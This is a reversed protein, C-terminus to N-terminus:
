LFQETALPAQSGPVGLSLQAHVRLALGGGEQQTSSLLGSVSPCM